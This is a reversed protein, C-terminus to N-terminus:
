SGTDTIVDNVRRPEVWLREGIVGHVYENDTVPDVEPDPVTTVEHARDVLWGVQQGEQEFIIVHDADQSDAAEIVSGPDVVPTEEGRYEMTGVVQPPGESTPTVSEHKVVGRIRSIEVCCWEEGLTFTLVAASPGAQTM